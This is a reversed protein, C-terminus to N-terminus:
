EVDWYTNGVILIYVAIKWYHTEVALQVRLPHRDSADSITVGALIAWCRIPFTSGSVQVRSPSAHDMGAAVVM